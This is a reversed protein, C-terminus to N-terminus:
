KRKIKVGIEIKQGVRIEAYRIKKGDFYVREKPEKYGIAEIEYKFNNIIIDDGIKEVFSEVSKICRIPSKCEYFMYNDNEHTVIRKSLSKVKYIKTVKKM